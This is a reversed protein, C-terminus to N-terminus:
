GGASLCCVCIACKRGDEQCVKEFVDSVGMDGKLVGSDKVISLADLSTCSEDGEYEKTLSVESRSYQDLHCKLARRAKLQALRIANRLEVASEGKVVSVGIGLLWATGKDSVWVQAGALRSLKQASDLRTRLDDEYQVPVSMAEVSELEQQFTWKMGIGVELRGQADMKTVRAIERAGTLYGETLRKVAVSMREHKVHNDSYSGRMATLTSGRLYSLIRSCAVARAVLEPERESSSVGIAIIERKGRCVGETEGQQRMIERLESVVDVEGSLAFFPCFGAAVVTLRLLLRMYYLKCFCM